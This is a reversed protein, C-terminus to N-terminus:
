DRARRRREEELRQEGKEILDRRIQIPKSRDIAREDWRFECLDCTVSNKNTFRQSLFGDVRALGILGLVGLVIGLLILSGSSSGFGAITLGLGGVALILTVARGLASAMVYSSGDFAFHTKYGGCNPCQLQAM